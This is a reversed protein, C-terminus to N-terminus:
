SHHFIQLWLSQTKQHIKQLFNFSDMRQEKMLFKNHNLKDKWLIFKDVFVIWIVLGIENNSDSIMIKVKLSILHVIKYNILVLKNHHIEM